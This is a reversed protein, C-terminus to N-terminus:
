SYVNPDEGVLDNVAREDYHLTAELEMGVGEGASIYQKVTEAM